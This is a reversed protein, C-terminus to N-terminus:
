RRNRRELFATMRDRKDATEFLVAQAIDEVRGTGDVIAKTLRLALPSSATIRDIVRHAAAVHEGAPVVDMVLGCRLATAADFTRGALLVQKAMSQGILAPLRYTAGAAAVIGLGPEPNGFVATESAIRVDCAYSLEAGGGLAYGSVAAVTPLPLAAFRDFLSRNIGALAQDRGRERLEGIDAGGAFHDGAGTLLVPAPDAEILGCVAHLDDIMAADIANRAEPRDLTVVYRDETRDLSVARLDPVTAPLADTM